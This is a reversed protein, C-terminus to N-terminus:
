APSPRAIARAPIAGDRTAAAPAPRPPLPARTTARGRAIALLDSLVAAATERGGAGRGRLLIEGAGALTLRIANETGPVVLPHARPLWVPRVSVHGPVIRAVSRIAFGRTRAEGAEEPRIGAIGEVAFAARDIPGFVTRHLILAKAGADHGGVDLRWDAELIGLRRAAALAEEFGVGEELRSLIWNSSGNLIGDIRQLDDGRFAAELLELVPTGGAVTASYRLEVGRARALARLEELHLAVAGKNATVVHVGSRLAARIRALSPEGDRLDTPTADVLVDAEALARPGPPLRGTREKQDIAAALDVGGPNAFAGRSDSVAVVRFEPRFALQRALARGVTGFGAIAVRVSM